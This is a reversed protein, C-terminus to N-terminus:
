RTSASSPSPPRLWVGLSDWATEPGGEGVPHPRAPRDGTCAVRVGGTAHGSLAQRATAEYRAERRARKGTVGSLVSAATVLSVGIWCISRARTRKQHTAITPIRRAPTTNM